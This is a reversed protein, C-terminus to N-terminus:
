FYNGKSTVYPFLRQELKQFSEQFDEVSVTNLQNTVIM